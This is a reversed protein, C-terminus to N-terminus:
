RTAVKDSELSLASASIQTTGSLGFRQPEYMAEIKAPPATVRGPAVVRALYQTRYDGEKSIYNAFFLVRDQQIERHNAYLARKSEERNVQQTAQTTFRPNIAEFVGPLPDDIALYTEKGTPLNVDLTVLILDGVKLNEAAVISGDNEVKKYSRQIAFGNNEAELQAMKPRAAIKLSAYVPSTASPTVTLNKERISGNFSFSAAGSRPQGPLTIESTDDGLTVTLQNSSINAAEAKGYEALAILPWANSYTSGWGRLPLKMKMLDDVYQDVRDGNPNHRVEALLRTAAIYPKKYWTVESVPMASDNALLDLILAPTDTGSEIMALALLARAEGPLEKKREFLVSHYPTENRGALALAYSALCRQSLQYANKLETTDRLQSSLYNWLSAAREKPVPIGQNQALAIAVGAYASGWLEAKTAGPWYGLGGNGTQMSFLRDIGKSIVESIEEDSKNLQPMVQRLQMTSLWPVISSTTQEVCGYPYTLLYELADTAGVLRSNSLTLEIEGNGELLRPEVQSLANELSRGNQIRFSHSERLLPLPYGIELTSETVDKLSTDTSSQVSWTWKAQGTETLAIPFSLTETAGPDLFATETRLARTPASLNTNLTEGIATLFAAHDDLQVKIEVEQTQSTNNHLVATVDIQDTINSFGPLAPEIILPKNIVLPAEGHGFRNGEAVVAMLRFTTLNDPATFTTSVTGDSGTTLKPEWFALAKFDKRIKDPDIGNGGGGGGIVYGKNMFDQELPNEPILDSISQGTFVSLPFPAHFIEHPNPTQHGTLSLVGEDVAFFTVDAGSAPQGDHGTISAIVTVEEGPQYFEAEGSDITVELHSENDDIKLETYGLRYDASTHIHPSEDSGRIILLSAYINPADGKEIPVELVTEYQDIEVSQTSRVGSRETTFLATGFVPSRALIKATDGIEYNEKDPILDIRIVDYWSWSPEEAGIVTFESRTLVPRNQGDRSTVTIVFDGAEEFNILHPQALTLGSDPDVKTRLQIKEESVTQLRRDNRHTMRGNSGMVKVTTWIEKEVLITAAVPETYVKGDAGAAALSFTATEGSRHIGEPERLGLYFDSSHVTFSVSDSITQQNADTVRASLRIDRPSPNKSQEPLIFKIAATGSPTLTAQGGDQHTSDNITLDGFYFGDFGLPRPYSSHANINWELQAKSLPKGMYYNASLPVEFNLNSIYSEDADLAVEFTNVRYEEVQFSHRAFLRWNEDESEPNNFDIEVSYWGLGASPLTFSENFAGSRDFNIEKDVIMRRMPDFVKLQARGEGAGILQNADIFRSLSKIKVEEGPKYVNRDTFILTRREGTKVDDWRQNVSFSWLGLSSLDEYFGMAHRDANISADLFLRTDVGSYTVADIYAVGNEDTQSEALTKAVSDTIRVNLNPIPTGSKLSFGYIMTSEKSQKWAIGIDTLQIISQAGVSLKERTSSQGESCLFFGGTTNEGALDDWSFTITESRDVPMQNDRFEDFIQRGPFSVFDIAQKDGWGEYRTTYEALALILDDGELHKVRTRLGTLNGTKVDFRRHGTANQTTSFAPFTIFGENPVFDIVETIAQALQTGDSAIIGEKVTLEYQIGHEFDASLNIRYTNLELSLNAPEPSITIYDRIKEGTFAPNLYAKNLRISVRPPNNYENRLDIKDIKFSNLSGVYNLSSENIKSSGDASVLGAKSYLYWSSDLPLPQVPRLVILNKTSTENIRHGLFKKATAEDPRRATLPASRENPKDFLYLFSEADAPTVPESFKLLIESESTLPNRSSFRYPFKEFTLAKKTPAEEALSIVNSFVSLLIIYLTLLYTLPKM